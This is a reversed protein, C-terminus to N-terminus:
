SRFVARCLCFFWAVAIKEGGASAMKRVCEQRAKTCGRQRDFHEIGSLGSLTSERASTGPRDRYARRCRRSRARLQLSAAEHALTTRRLPWRAQPPIRENVKVNSFNIHTCSQLTRVLFQKQRSVRFPLGSRTTTLKIQGPRVSRFPNESREFQCIPSPTM